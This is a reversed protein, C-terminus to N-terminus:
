TLVAGQVEGVDWGIADFRLHVLQSQGEVLNLGPLRAIDARRDAQLASRELDCSGDCSGVPRLGERNNRSAGFL